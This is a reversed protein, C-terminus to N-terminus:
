SFLIRYMFLISRFRIWLNLGPIIWNQCVYYLSEYDLAHLSLSILDTASHDSQFNIWLNLGIFASVGQIISQIATSFYVRLFVQCAFIYKYERLIVIHIVEKAAFSCPYVKSYAVRKAAAAAPLM